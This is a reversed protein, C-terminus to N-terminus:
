DAEDPKSFNEDYGDYALEGEADEKFLHATDTADFIIFDWGGILNSITIPSVVEIKQEM